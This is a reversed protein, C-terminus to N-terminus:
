RAGNRRPGKWTEEGSTGGILSGVVDLRGTWDPDYPESQVDFTVPHPGLVGRFVEGHEAEVFGEPLTVVIPCRDGSKGDEVFVYRIGMEADLLTGHGLTSALTYTVRARLRILGFRGPVQEPHQVISILIPQPPPMVTVDSSGNSGMLVTKLLNELIPLRVRNASATPPKLAKRFDNVQYRILRLIENAVKPGLPDIGDIPQGSQWSDHAKPETQRLLDDVTNAAVFTGRVYPMSRGAELYEVVMRPGRVLAILSRREASEGDIEDATIPELPYSWGTAGTEAVLGLKGLEWREGNVRTSSLAKSREQSVLNDQPVTALEHGRMFTALLPNKRPRPVLRDQEPTIIDVTFLQENIAPWWNREIATCLDEATVTPQILLFTTGLQEVQAPDRPDLGADIAKEDAEENIFPVVAGSQELHGLRAFGTHMRGKADHPGWYTMGMMRRTVDPDDPHERFCTYAVVTRIASGRILGAKGYGYSGGAGDEKRTFGVSVLALYLKSRAGVFPGDMGTTGFERIELTQLPKRSALDQLCDLEDLGVANRDLGKARTALENLGLTKTLAKKAPGSSSRYRFELHFPPASTGVAQLKHQLERAADWSNQIVERAILTADAPPADVKLEGPEKIVENKFLKALDGASGSRAPDVLEWNWKM